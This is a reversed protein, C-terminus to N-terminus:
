IEPNGSTFPYIRHRCLPSVGKFMRIVPLAPKVSRFSASFDGTIEIQGIGLLRIYNWVYM